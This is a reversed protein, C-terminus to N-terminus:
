GKGPLRTLLPDIWAPPLTALLWALAAMPWPYALRARNGDIAKRMLAAAKDATLLFPMPFRNVATMPTAVFGPCLVTVGIGRAALNGRLGEGWVKVAAKSAAYAPAGPQGRYGALSAMLAIQGHRRREMRAVAPLVTNIVGDVNIAFIRRVQDDKEGRGGSTGGSVGANAIVVDLAVRDDADGIAQAIADRDTVDVVIPTAAAGRGRCSAAVEELRSLDRGALFLHSSPDAYARALAAGLGSSAGTIFIGRTM